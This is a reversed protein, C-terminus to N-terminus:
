YVQSWNSLFFIVIRSLNRFDKTYKFNFKLFHFTAPFCFAKVIDPEKFKYPQMVTPIDRQREREGSVKSAKYCLMDTLAFM